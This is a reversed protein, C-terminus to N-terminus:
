PKEEGALFRTAHGEILTLKELPSSLLSPHRYLLQVRAAMGKAEELRKRLAAYEDRMAKSEAMWSEITGQHALAEAEIAKRLAANAKLLEHRDLEATDMRKIHRDWADAHALDSQLHCRQQEDTWEGLRMNNSAQASARLSNPTYNM